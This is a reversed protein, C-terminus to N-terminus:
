SKHMKPIIECEIGVIAGGFEAHNNEFHSEGLFYLATQYLTLGGGEKFHATTNKPLSSNKITACGSLTINSNFAFFSGINHTVLMSGQFHVVSNLIYMHSNLTAVNKTFFTPGCSQVTSKIVYLAAGTPARNSISSIKKDVASYLQTRPCTSNLAYHDNRSDDSSYVYCTNVDVKTSTQSLMRGNSFWFLLAGGFSHAVNNAFLCGVVTSTDLFFDLAAGHWHAVNSTFVSAVVTTNGRHTGVGAGGGAVNKDFTSNCIVSSSDYAFVAAGHDSASNSFFHTM